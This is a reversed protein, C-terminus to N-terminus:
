LSRELAANWARRAPNATATLIEAAASVDSRRSMRPTAVVLDGYGGVFYRPSRMLEMVDSADANNRERWPVLLACSRACACLPATRNVMHRPTNTACSSEDTTLRATFCM